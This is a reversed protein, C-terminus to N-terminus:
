FSAHSNTLHQNWSLQSSHCYLHCSDSYLLGISAISQLSWLFNTTVLPCTPSYSPSSPVTLHPLFPKLLKLKAPQSVNDPTGSESAVGVGLLPFSPLSGPPQTPSDQLCNIPPSAPPLTGPLDTWCVRPSLLSAGLVGHGGGLPYRQSRQTGRQARSSSRTGTSGCKIYSRRVRWWSRISERSSPKWRCCSLTTFFLNNGHMGLYGPSPPELLLRPLGGKIQSLPLPTHTSNECLNETPVGM